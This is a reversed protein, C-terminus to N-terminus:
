MIEKVKADVPIAGRYCLFSVLAHNRPSIFNNAIDFRSGMPLASLVGEKGEFWEQLTHEVDIAKTVAYFFKGDLKM